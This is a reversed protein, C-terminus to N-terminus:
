RAEIVIDGSTVDIDILAEGAGFTGAKHNSEDTTYNVGSFGSVTVTGNGTFADFTASVDSPVSLTVDGNVIALIASDAAALLAMDCDISGNVLYAEVGPELNEITILGNVVSIEAGGKMSNIQANGNVIAIKINLSEPATFDFHAQYNRGEEDRDPIDAELTLVGGNMDETIVISDIFPAAEASDTGLVSRTIDVTIITDQTISFDINGSVTRADIINMGTASWTRTEEVEQQYDLNLSDCGILLFLVFLVGLTKRM